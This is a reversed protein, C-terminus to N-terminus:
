LFVAREREREREREMIYRCLGQTSKNIRANTPLFLVICVKAAIEMFSEWTVNM